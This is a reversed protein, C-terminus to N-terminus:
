SRIHVGSSLTCEPFAGAGGCSWAPQVCPQPTGWHWGCSLRVCPRPQLQVQTLQEGAPEGPHHQQVQAPQEHGPVGWGGASFLSLDLLSSSLCSGWARVWCSVSDGGRWPQWARRSAALLSVQPLSVESPCQQALLLANRLVLELSCPRLFAALPNSLVSCSTQQQIGVSGLM